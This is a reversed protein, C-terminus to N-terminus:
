EKLYILSGDSKSEFYEKRIREARDVEIKLERKKPKTMVHTCIVIRGEDFFFPARLLGAKLEFIEKSLRRPMRENHLPGENAVHKILALLRIGDIALKGELGNLFELLECDGRAGCAAYVRFRGEKVLRVKM